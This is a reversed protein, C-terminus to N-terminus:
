LGPNMSEDRQRLLLESAESAWTIVLCSDAYENELNTTYVARQKDYHATVGLIATDGNTRWADYRVISEDKNMESM